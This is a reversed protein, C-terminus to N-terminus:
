CHTYEISHLLPNGSFERGGKAHYSRIRRIKESRISGRKSMAEGDTGYAEREENM